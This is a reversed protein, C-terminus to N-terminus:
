LAAYESGRLGHAADVLLMLFVVIISDQVLSAMRALLIHLNRTAVDTDLGIAWRGMAGMRPVHVAGWYGHDKQRLVVNWARGVSARVIRWRPVGGFAWRGVFGRLIDRARAALTDSAGAAWAWAAGNEEFGAAGARLGHGADVVVLMPFVRIISGQRNPFLSFAGGVRSSSKFSSLVAHPPRHDVVPDIALFSFAPPHACPSSLSSYPPAMLLTSSQVSTVHPASAPTHSACWWGTGVFCPSDVYSFLLLLPLTRHSTRCVKGREGMRRDRERPTSDERGHASAAGLYTATCRAAALAHPRYLRRKLHLIQM